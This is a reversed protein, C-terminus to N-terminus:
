SRKAEQREKMWKRKFVDKKVKPMHDIFLKGNLHDVEHQIIRAILGDAELEFPKGDRDLAHVRIRESREIEAYYEPVSLCGEEFLVCGELEDIEPNILVLIQSPDEGFSSDITIVRLLVGVQVAALGVGPATNITELMDDVLEKINDDIKNVSASIKRLIQDPYVKIEKVTM